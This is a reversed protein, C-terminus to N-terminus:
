SGRGRPTPQPTPGDELVSRIRELVLATHNLMEANTFRIVTLGRSELFKLRRTDSEINEEEFHQGGDLEIALKKEHCISTSCSLASSSNGAFNREPM